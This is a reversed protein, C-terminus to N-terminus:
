KELKNYRKDERELVDALCRHMAARKYKINIYILHESLSKLIRSDSSLNWKNLAERNYCLM